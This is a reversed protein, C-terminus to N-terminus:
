RSPILGLRRHTEIDERLDDESYDLYVGSNKLFEHVELNTEFGLMRRIQPESLVRTRYGQIAIAEITKRPIDGWQSHLTDSVDDPLEIQLQM